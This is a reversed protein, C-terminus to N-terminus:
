LGQNLDGRPIGLIVFYFMLLGSCLVSVAGKYMLNVRMGFWQTEPPYLASPSIFGEIMAALFFLVISAVLIPMADRASKELSALRSLGHTVIFGIGIRLGAGACLVIATLEFPGHAMVFEQFHEGSEGVDPRFMYGFSAGLLAANYTMTLLGPVVFVSGVFCQLGIWPNNFIYFSMAVFDEYWSRGDLPQEFSAELQEMHPRTMVQEAYDPWVSHSHALYASLIFVGWFIVFCSQVCRDNFIRQPTEVMLLRFWAASDFGRGRYLQNNARAVLRHLYNVTNPPLQYADALALDACAARYLSAFRSLTEADHAPPKSNHRVLIYALLYVPVLCPVALSTIIAVLVLLRRANPNVADCLRELEHWNQRRRELLEAVKM